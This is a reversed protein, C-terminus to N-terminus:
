HLIYQLQQQRRHKCTIAKYMYKKIVTKTLSTIETSVNKIQAFNQMMIYGAYFYNQFNINLDFYIIGSTKHM